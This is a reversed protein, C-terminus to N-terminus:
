LKPLVIGRERFSRRLQQWALEPIHDACAPTSSIALKVVIQAYQAILQPHRGAAVIRVRMEPWRKSLARLTERQHKQIDM